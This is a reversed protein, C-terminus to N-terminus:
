WGDEEVLAPATLVEKIQEEKIQEEKSLEAVKAALYMNLSDWERFYRLEGSRVHRVEGRVEITEEGMWEQWLRVSFLYSHSPSSLQKNNM